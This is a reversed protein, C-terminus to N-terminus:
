DAALRAKVGGLNTTAAVSIRTTEEDSIWPPARRTLITVSCFRGARNIEVMRMLLLLLLLLPVLLYLFFANRRSERGTVTVRTVPFGPCPGCCKNLSGRM